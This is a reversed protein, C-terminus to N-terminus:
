RGKGLTMHLGFQLQWQSDPSVVHWPDAARLREDEDRATLVSSGWKVLVGEGCDSCEELLPLVPRITQVTGWESNLVNLVNILDGELRVDASGFRFTHSFRLDLRNEWPARCGNRPLIRGRYEALCPDSKLASAMLGMTVFSSPLETGTQPVYLLDNNRDFAGGLGPYGDGNLDFRYVYSFPLGSQGTYLLSFETDPLGPIPAGYIAAVVKHPRDFNSTTLRPNNADESTPRLGYNSMMDTYVLSTRDWSGSWAYGM